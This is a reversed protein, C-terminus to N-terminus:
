HEYEVRAVMGQPALYNVVVSTTGAPLPGTWPWWQAFAQGADSKQLERVDPPTGGRWIVAYIGFVRATKQNGDTNATLWFQADGCWGGVVDTPVQFDRRTTTAPLDMDDEDRRRNLWRTSPHPGTIEAASEVIVDCAASIASGTPM